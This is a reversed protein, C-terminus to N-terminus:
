VGGNPHDPPAPQPTSTGRSLSRAVPARRRLRAHAAYAMARGAPGIKRPASTRRSAVRYAALVFASVCRLRAIPKSNQCIRATASDSAAAGGCGVDEIVTTFDHSWAGA